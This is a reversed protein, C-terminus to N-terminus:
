VWALCAPIVGRICSALVKVESVDLPVTHKVSSGDAEKKFMTFIVGVGVGQPSSIELWKQVKGASATQAGPDHMIKIYPGKDEEGPKPKIAGELLALIKGQDHISLAMVVKREWDYVNKDSASTIELFLAGERSTLDDKTLAPNKELWEKPIFKGEYNKLKPNSEVYFHPRQLNFQLAGWKGTVGKYFALQLPILSM